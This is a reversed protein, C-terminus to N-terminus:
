SPQKPRRLIKRLYLEARTLEKQVSRKHLGFEAAIEGQSKEDRWKALFIAQRRVPLAHLAQLARNMEDTALAAAEQDPAGDPIEHVAADDM